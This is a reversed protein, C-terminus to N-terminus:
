NETHKFEPVHAKVLKLNEPSGYKELLLKAAEIKIRRDTITGLIMIERLTKEKIEGKQLSQWDQYLDISM